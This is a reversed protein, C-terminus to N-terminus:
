NYIQTSSHFPAIFQTIMDFQIILNDFILNDTDDSNLHLFNPSTWNETTLLCDNLSSLQYASIQTDDNHCNYSPFPIFSDSSLQDLSWYMCSQQILILSTKLQVLSALGTISDIVIFHSSWHYWLCCVFWNYGAMPWVQLRLEQSSFQLSVTLQTMTNYISCQINSLKM